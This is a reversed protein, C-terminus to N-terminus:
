YSRVLSPFILSDETISGATSLQEATDAREADGYRLAERLSLTRSLAPPVDAAPDATSLRGIIPLSVSTSM